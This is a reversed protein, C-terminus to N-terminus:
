KVSTETAQLYIRFTAGSGETSWVTIHGESQKVFGYVMSLGLGTGKGVDKTTFFPEFLRELNESPIGVGDDCATIMVYRGPLMGEPREDDPAFQINATRIDLHGGDPMADRANISLNLVAQELQGPDIRCDDLEAALDFEIEIEEVLSSKILPRMGRLLENVDVHRPLLPQQRSFALLYSTLSAAKEVARLTPALFETSLDSPGLEEALIALNGMMVALLNNFDHAIGGTLQGIAEMKQSQRLNAEADKRGTIDTHWVATCSRGDFQFPRSTM